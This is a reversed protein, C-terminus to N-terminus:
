QRGAIVTVEGPDVMNVGRTQLRMLMRQLSDEDDATVLIRAYSTDTADHGLDFKEVVHDGGYDRIDNLVLSLIGSDM